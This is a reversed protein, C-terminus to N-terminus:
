SQSNPPSWPTKNRNELAKYDETRSLQYINSMPPEFNSLTQLIIAKTVGSTTNEWCLVPGAKDTNRLTQSTIMYITTDSIADFWIKINFQGLFVPPAPRNIDTLHHPITCPTPQTVELDTFFWFSLQTRGTHTAIVCNAQYM